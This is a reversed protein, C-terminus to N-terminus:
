DGSESTSAVRPPHRLAAGAPPLTVFRGGRVEALLPPTANAGSGDFTIPGGVGDTEGAAAMADRIRARNLGAKRIAAIVMRTADYAAAALEDAPENYRDGYRENFAALMPDDRWMDRGTVVITGEAHEGARELFAPSALEPGGALVQHMARARMRLVLRAADDADAFVVVADAGSSEILALQPTTNEIGPPFRLNLRLPAELRRAAKELELARLRHDPTDAALGVLSRCGLQRILYNALLEAMHQDSPMLRFTWPINIRTLSSSSSAVLILPLQAKAVVQQAIHSSQEGVGGLVAWVQDSYALAVVERASGWIQDDPRHVLVFPLGRFGGEGNAETIALEAGRRLSRGATARPGQTPASLGLRVGDLGEPEDLDRGPGTYEYPRVDLRAHPELGRFPQEGALGLASAAMTVSLVFSRAPTMRPDAVAGAQPPRDQAM